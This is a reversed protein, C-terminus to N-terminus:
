PSELLPKLAEAWIAYGKAAPHLFDPMIEPSIKGSADLFKGGIDLLTVGSTKAVAPLLANIAAVKARAPNDPTEGRPFVAMLIIRAAPCQAKAREVVAQIGEAIEAPTNERANATGALNNTGIHIVITKPRLGLLEGHDLRWLVNQTRDWGFGLNLAPHGAFLADWVAAGRNGKPERPEGGWLHTISDGILVVEPSLRARAALVAEHRPFWEYFDNELKDHPLCATNEGPGIEAYSSSTTLGRADQVTFFFTLPRANPLPAAIEQGTITATTTQWQRATWTGTGSTFHLNASLPVTGALVPVTAQTETSKIAGLRVLAPAQPSPQLVHDIYADVEGFTWIHGHDLQVRLSLTVLEPAVLSSTKRHSDPPYAFDHMGNLFLMPCRTGSVIKSPDFLQLWRQRSAETLAAMSRDRWYSNGGLFGCGYVPVAAKLEPDLGAVINTLYGGWSIGTVAVRDADVSPLSKLVGHGRLVAAVAHYTWQDRAQAESFEQFKVNDAQSPGPAGHRQGDPGQGATDMALAVYGRAAWHTAWDKFAKGGGGHVLLIAPHKAAPDGAPKGLYAFIRTPQSALPEGAYWIEQTLGDVPGIELAPTVSLLAPVDWLKAATLPTEQALCTSALLLLFVSRIM